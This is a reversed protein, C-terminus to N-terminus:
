GGAMWGGDVVILQGTLFDSAPAALFVATGAIDEPEGWRGAPVRNLIYAGRESEEVPRTLPTRIYGPCISNVNINYRAWDIALQYTMSALGGKAATYAPILPIGTIASLSAIHIIKGYKREIMHRAALQTLFFTGKLNTSMVQDWDEERYDEPPTRVNVGANNVLIDIQQWTDLVTTVLAERDERNSIDAEVVLAEGGFGKIDDATDDLRSRTRGALVVRAGSEAMATAIGKGIGTGAGTVIAVKEKLSFRELNM